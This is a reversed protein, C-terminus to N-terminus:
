GEVPISSANPSGSYNAQSMFLRELKQIIEQVKSKSAGATLNEIADMKVRALEPGCIALCSQKVRGRGSRDPNPPPFEPVSRSQTTIRTPSPM